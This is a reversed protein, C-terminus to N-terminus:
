LWRQERYWAITNELGGKLDFEPKFGLENRARDINCVWYNHSMERIKDLYFGATSRPVLRAVARVAAASISWPLPLALSGKGLIGSLIRFIEGWRYVKGDGVFYTRFGTMPREAALLIARTLDTVYVASFINDHRGPQIRVGWRALKIVRLTEADRPGYVAAPRLVVVPFDRAYGAAEQEAALKSEGYYSVPHATEDESLLHGDPSPGAASLSSIYIFRDISGSKERAAELLHKTGQWNTRFFAEKDRGKISGALHFVTTIGELSRALSVRDDLDGMVYEIGERPLFQRSSTKRLLCRVEWGSRLLAEVLHSGIFGSGGTVLCKLRKNM